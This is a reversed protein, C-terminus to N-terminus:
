SHYTEYMGFADGIRDIIDPTTTSRKRDSFALTGARKTLSCAAYAAAVTDSNTSNAWHAFTGLIGALVDGQGGCRRKSFNEERAIVSVSGDSIIDVAGKRIVTVGRGIASALSQVADKGSQLTSAEDDFGFEFADAPPSAGMFSRFLRDFERANPTLYVNELDSHQESALIDPQEALLYLADGDLVVPMPRKRKRSVAAVIIERASDLVAADRGLGPGVVLAHIRDLTDAIRASCMTSSDANANSSPLYPYVILEPSYSKIPIAAEPACYVFSLDAGAKLSAMGAYYPAGTYELSGGVIGIRGSSGKHMKETLPPILARIRPLMAAASTNMASSSFGIRM